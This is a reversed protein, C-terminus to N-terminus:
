GDVPKLQAFARALRKHGVRRFAVEIAGEDAAVVVGEGHSPHRVQAGIEPWAASPASAGVPEDLWRVTSAPLLRLFPSPEPSARPLDPATLWGVHLADRARTIAVFLLRQEEALVNPSTM